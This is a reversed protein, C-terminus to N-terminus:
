YNMWLRETMTRKTKASSAKNDIKFDQLRWGSLRTDYLKNPYGSIMVKGVCQVITELLEVHEDTTMEFEYDRTTTRTEHVYPPDLYFLTDKGDQSCIVKPAKENLIVVRKLRKSVDPLGDIAALWASAQENMQRRTRTRSLTAFCDMKGARSQRCRIFFRAASEVPDTAPEFSQEWETQSFPTCEIRRYFHAFHQDNQLVRWFGTLEGHIDNAVESVGDPCKNLLVAGGGFFPEVYHTHPPMLGIIRKALYHKGGHWKLPQTLQSRAIM